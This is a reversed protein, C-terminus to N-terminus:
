IRAHFFPLLNQVLAVFNDFLKTASCKSINVLDLLSLCTIEQCGLNLLGHFICLVNHKEPFGLQNVLQSALRSNGIQMEDTVLLGFIALHVVYHDHVQEALTKLVLELLASSLKVEFCAEVDGNLHDLSDLGDM